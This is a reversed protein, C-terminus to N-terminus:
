YGRLRRTELTTLGYENLRVHQLNIPYISTLEESSSM